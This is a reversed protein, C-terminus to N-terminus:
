RGQKLESVTVTANAALLADRALGSIEEVKLVEHAAMLVTAEAFRASDWAKLHVEATMGNRVIENERTGLILVFRPRLAPPKEPRVRRAVLNCAALYIRGAEEASWKKHHPNSVEFPLAVQALGGCSLIIVLVFFAGVKCITHRPSNFISSKSFNPSEIPPRFDSKM